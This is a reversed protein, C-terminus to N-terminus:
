EIGELPWEGDVFELHLRPIGDPGTRAARVAAVLAQGTEMNTVRVFRGRSERLKPFAAQATYYAGRLSVRAHDDWLVDDVDELRGPESSRRSAANHIFADLTPAVNVATPNDPM